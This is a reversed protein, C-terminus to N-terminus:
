RESGPGLGVIPAKDDADGARANAAAFEAGVQRDREAARACREEWTSRKSSSSRRGNQDGVLKLPAILPLEGAIRAHARAIPRIFYELSSITEGKRRRSDVQTRVQDLIVEERWAPQMQFTPWLREAIQLRTWALTPCILLIQSAIRDARERADGGAGLHAFNNPPHPPFSSPPLGRIEASEATEANEIRPLTRQNGCRVRSSKRQKETRDNSRRRDERLQSAFAKAYRMTADASHQGQRRFVEVLEARYPFEQALLALVEDPAMGSDLLTKILPVIDSPTMGEGERCRRSNRPFRVRTAVTSFKSLLLQGPIQNSGIACCM